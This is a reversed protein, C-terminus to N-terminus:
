ALGQKGVVRVQTQACRRNPKIRMQLRGVLVHNAGRQRAHRQHNQAMVSAHSPAEGVGTGIHLVQIQFFDVRGVGRLVLRGLAPLRKFRPLFGNTDFAHGVQRVGHSAGAM